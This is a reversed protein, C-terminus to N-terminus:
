CCTAPIMYFATEKKEKKEKKKKHTKKNKLCLAKRLYVYMYITVFYLTLM